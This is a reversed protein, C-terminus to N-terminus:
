GSERTVTVTYTKTASRDASVVRVKIVNAGVSLNVIGDEGVAGDTDSYITYVALSNTLEPAIAVTDIGNAVTATYATAARDFSSSLGAGAVPLGLLDASNRWPSTHNLSWSSWGTWCKM